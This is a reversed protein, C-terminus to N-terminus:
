FKYKANLMATQDNYDKRFRGEWGASIELNDTVDTAVKAGLEFGLRDLKEGNVHYAAGNALVVNANNGDDILDYTVAAKM